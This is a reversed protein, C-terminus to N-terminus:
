TADPATYGIDFTFPKFPDVRDACHGCRDAHPANGKGCVPCVWGHPAPLPVPWPVQKPRQAPCGATTAEHEPSGCINCAM